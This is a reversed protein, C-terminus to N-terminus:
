SKKATKCHSASAVIEEWFSSSMSLSSSYDMSITSFSLYKISLIAEKDHNSMRM